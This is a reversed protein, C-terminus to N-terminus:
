VLVLKPKAVPTELVKPKVFADRNLALSIIGFVWWTYGPRLLPVIGTSDVLLSILIVISILSLADKQKFYTTSLQRFLIVILACYTVLALIGNGLLIRLFENHTVSGIGYYYGTFILAMLDGTDARSLLLDWRSLRGALLTGTNQEDLTGEFFMMEKFFNQDIFATIPDVFFYTSILLLLLLPGVFYKKTYISYALIGFLATALFAKSYCYYLVILTLGLFSLLMYKQIYSQRWTRLYILIAFVTQTAFGRLTHMDYYFASLRQTGQTGKYLRGQYVGVVQLIGTLVPFLGAVILVLFFKKRDEDKPFLYPMILYACFGNLVQFLVMISPVIKLDIPDEIFTNVMYTLLSFVNIAIFFFITKRGVLKVFHVRHTVIILIVTVPFVVGSIQLLTLELIPIRFAWTADVIPKTVFLLLMARQPHRALLVLFAAVIATAIPILPSTTGFYALLGLVIVPGLIKFVNLM